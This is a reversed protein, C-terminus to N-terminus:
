WCRSGLILILPAMRGNSRHIKMAHIPVVKCKGKWREAPSQLISDDFLDRRGGAVDKGNITNGNLKISYLYQQQILV